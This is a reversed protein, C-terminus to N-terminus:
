KAAEAGSSNEIPESYQKSSKIPTVKAGPRAFQIGNIIVWDSKTLGKEIVRLHDIQQGLKVPKQEVISDKNVVFLYHGGQDMGVALNPVLLAERKKLPVRIRVFLGPLLLGDKNPFVARVTLTGTGPDVQTDVFDVKGERPFDTEDALSLFCPAEPRHIDSRESVRAYLRALRLLDNESLNFYAYVSSDNVVNTLLTREQAGVLNGLDVMNRGVRGDIPSRVQTYDLQLKAEELDAKAVGKQALAMDRNAKDELFAIESISSTKLLNASKEEKVQALNLAAEKVKLNAEQQNVRAQFPRPDIVFLLDGAKVQQGPEFNMKDLFGQVRARIEVSELAKTNGTFELNDTVEREEPLNITVEPPPPPAFTEPGHGCGFLIIASLLLSWRFTRNSLTHM